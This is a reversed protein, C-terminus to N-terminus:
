ALRWIRPVELLLDLVYDANKPPDFKALYAYLDELDQKIQTSHRM